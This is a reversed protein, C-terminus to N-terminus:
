SLKEFNIIYEFHKTKVQSRQDFIKSHITIASLLLVMEAHYIDCSSAAKINAANAKMAYIMEGQAFYWPDLCNCIIVGTTPASGWQIDVEPAGHQIITLSSSGAAAAAPSHKPLNDLSNCNGAM